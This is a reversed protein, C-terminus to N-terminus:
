PQHIIIVQDSTGGDILGLKHAKNYIDAPGIMRNYVYRRDAYERQVKDYERQLHNVESYLQQTEFVHNLYLLGALGILLTAVIIKWPKIAPWKINRQTKKRAYIVTEHNGSATRNFVPTSNKRNQQPLRSSPPVPKKRRRNPAPAKKKYDVPTHIFM